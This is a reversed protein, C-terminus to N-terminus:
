AHAFLGILSIKILNGSYRSYAARRRSGSMGDHLITARTPRSCVWPLKAVHSSRPTSKGPARDPRRRQMMALQMAKGADPLGAGSAAVDRARACSLRRQRQDRRRSRRESGRDSRFYRRYGPPLTANEPPAMGPFSDFHDHAAEILLCNTFAGQECYEKFRESTIITGPLGRAIFADEGSWTGPELVLRRLRMMSGIRCEACASELHVFSLVGVLASVAVLFRM